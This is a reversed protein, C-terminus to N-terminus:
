RTIPELGTQKMVAAGAPSLVLDVLARAGKPNPAKTAIGASFISVRQVEAPLPGVLDVGKVARLESIQQVGLEAEGRAVVNGVPENGIRQVKPLVQSAIGLQPLLENTLYQGSIQASIAISRAELFAKKLGDVTRIDPRQQGARVGVGIASRAIDVRSSKVIHGEKVLDDMANAAIFVVDVPEGKRIRTQINAAGVGTSTALTVAKFTNGSEFRSVLQLYAPATAGNSMVRVEAIQTTAALLAIGALGAIKSTM